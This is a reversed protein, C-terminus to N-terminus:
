YQRRKMAHESCWPQPCDIFAVSPSHVSVALNLTSMGGTFYNIITGSICCQVFLVNFMFLSSCKLHLWIEYAHPVLSFTKKQTHTNVLSIM